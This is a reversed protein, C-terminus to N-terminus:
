GPSCRRGPRIRLGPNGGCGALHGPFDPSDPVVTTNSITTCEAIGCSWSDTQQQCLINPAATFPPDADFAANLWHVLSDIAQKDQRRVGALSDGYSYTRLNFDVCIFAWHEKGPNVIFFLRKRGLTNILEEHRQLLNSRKGAPGKTYNNSLGNTFAIDAIVVTKSLQVDRQVQLGIWHLIMNIIEDDLFCDEFFQIVAACVACM